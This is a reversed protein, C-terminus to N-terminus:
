ATQEGLYAEIVKPDASVEAPTGDAIRQGYSLVLIRDCLGMIARMLHEVMVITIGRERVQRILDMTRDMETPNLGSIVEDLLLVKPRTALARAVELRKRQPLNLSRAVVDRQAALGTFELVEEAWARVESEARTGPKGFHAGVRVNDLVSLDLFPRVIQHTTVLGLQCIRYPPLGTVDQGDLYVRGATPPYSGSIMRFLTTKGAGNPGILGYISGRPVAFDVQQVAALGGFRKTVGEGRVVIEPTTGNASM